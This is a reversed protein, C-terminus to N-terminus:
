KNNYLTKLKKLGRHSQVTVTNKSQGTIFAIEKISLNKKYRMSMIKQYKKPLHQILLLAEKGDLFNFMRKSNDFSPEYGNEILIELSTTKHKDRKRYEDIILQNLVHYLFAKMIDIKGSKVLYKWTKMFTDQVMDDSTAHNSTKYFAYSNMGKAYDHHAQTLIVNKKNNQKNTIM